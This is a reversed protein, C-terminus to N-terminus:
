HILAIAGSPVGAELLTEVLRRGMLPTVDSPKFVVGNGAALAPGLKRSPINLPFNWPTIAAVVGVPYRQSFIWSGDGSPFTQGSLRHTEGAYFRFNQPTRRIEGQAEALTKGEERVLETALKDAQSELIAAARMLVDAR